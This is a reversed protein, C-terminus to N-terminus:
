TVPKLTRTTRIDSMLKDRDSLPRPQALVNESASKILTVGKTIDDMLAIRATPTKPSRLPPLPPPPPATTPPPFSEYLEDESIEEYDDYQLLPPPLPPPPLEDRLPETLPMKSSSRPPPMPSTKRPRQRDAKITKQRRLEAVGGLSEQIFGYIFEKENADKGKVDIGAKRLLELVLPDHEDFSLGRNIDWGIHSM